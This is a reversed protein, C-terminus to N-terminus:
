CGEASGVTAGFIMMVRLGVVAGDNAGESSGELTGDISGLSLGVILGVARVFAGLATGLLSGVGVGESAGVEVLGVVATGVAGVAGIVTAGETAGCVFAGTKV